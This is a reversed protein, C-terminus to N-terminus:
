VQSHDSPCQKIEEQLSVRPVCERKSSRETQGPLLIVLLKGSYNRDKCQDGNYLSFEPLIEPKFSFIYNNLRGHNSCRSFVVSYDELQRASFDVTTLIYKNGWKTSKMVFRM